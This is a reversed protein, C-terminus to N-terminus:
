SEPEDPEIFEIKPLDEDKSAALERLAQRAKEHFDMDSCFRDSWTNSQDILEKVWPVSRKLCGRNVSATRSPSANTTTTPIATTPTERDLKCSV